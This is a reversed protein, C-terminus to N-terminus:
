VLESATYRLYTKLRRLTSFSRQPTATSVRFVALIEFPQYINPYLMKDCAILASIVSKPRYATEVSKRVSLDM